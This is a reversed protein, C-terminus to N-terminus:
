AFLEANFADAIKRARALRDGLPPVAAQLQAILRDEAASERADMEAFLHKIDRALQAPQQQREMAEDHLRVLRAMARHFCPQGFTFAVCTCEGNAAYCKGSSSGIILGHGNPNREIWPNCELEYAARGIAVLWRGHQAADRCAQEVVDNLTSHDLNLM